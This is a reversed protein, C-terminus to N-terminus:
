RLRRRAQGGPQGKEAAMREAPARLPCSWARASRNADNARSGSAARSSRLEGRHSDKQHGEGARRRTSSCSAGHHHVRVRTIAQQREDVVQRLHGGGGQHAHPRRPPTPASSDDTTRAPGPRNWGAQRSGKSSRSPCQQCSWHRAGSLRARRQVDEDVRSPESAPNSLVRGRRASAVGPAAKSRAAGSASARRAVSGSRAASYRAGPGSIIFLSGASVDFGRDGQDRIAGGDHHSAEAEGSDRFVQERASWGRPVLFRVMMLLLAPVSPKPM